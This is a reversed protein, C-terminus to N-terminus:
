KDYFLYEEIMSATNLKNAVHTYLRGGVDCKAPDNEYCVANSGFSEEYYNLNQAFWLKGDIFAVDYTNSDRPDTYYSSEYIAPFQLELNELHDTLAIMTNAFYISDAKIKDYISDRLQDMESQWNAKMTELKDAFTASDAKIISIIAEKQIDILGLLENNKNTITADLESKDTIRKVELDIIDGEYKEIETLLGNYSTNITEMFATSDNSIKTYLADIQPQYDTVSITFNPHDNTISINEDNEAANIIVTQEPATNILSDGRKELGDSFKYDLANGAQNAYLAVPVSTIKNIGVLVPTSALNARVWIEIFYDGTSWDVGDMTQNPIAPTGTGVELNVLGMQNTNVVHTENYVLTSLKPDAGKKLVVRVEVEKNAIFKGQGDRIVTQYQFTESVQSYSAITLAIFALFVVVNKRLM